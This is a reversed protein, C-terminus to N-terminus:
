KVELWKSLRIIPMLGRPKPIGPMKYDTVIVDISEAAMITMVPEVSEVYICDFDNKILATAFFDLIHKQDEVLLIKHTNAM